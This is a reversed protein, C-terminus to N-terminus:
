SLRIDKTITPRSDRDNKTVERLAGKILDDNLEEFVVAMHGLMIEGDLKWGGTILNMVVKAYTEILGVRVYSQKTRWDLYDKRHAESM